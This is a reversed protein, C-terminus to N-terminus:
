SYLLQMKNYIVFEYKVDYSWVARTDHGPRIHVRSGVLEINFWHM